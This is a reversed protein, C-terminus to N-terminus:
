ARNRRLAVLGGGIALIIMSIPEPTAATKGVNAAWINYDAVDVLGDGNLDGQTWTAGTKGVNAAWINYDAVDVLGDNNIDGALTPNSWVNTLTIGTSTYNVTASGGVFKISAFSSNSLDNPATIITLTQGAFPDTVGGPQTGKPELGPVINVVLNADALANTTSSASTIAGSGWLGVVLNSYDVGQVGRTGNVHFALTSATGANRALTLGGWVTMTKPNAATGITTDGSELTSGTLTAVFSPTVYPWGGQYCCITGSGSIKSNIFTCTNGGSATDNIRIGAQSDASFSNLAVNLGTVVNQLTNPTGAIWLQARNEQNQISGINKDATVSIQGCNSYDLNTPLSFTGDTVATKGLFGTFDSVSVWGGNVIFNSASTGTLSDINMGSNCTAASVFNSDHLVINHYTLGYQGTTENFVLAGGGYVDVQCAGFAYAFGFTVTSGPSITMANEDGTNNELNGINVDINGTAPTVYLPQDNLQWGTVNGTGQFHVSACYGNLNWGMNIAGMTPGFYVDNTSNPMGGTSWNAGNFLDYADGTGYSINGTTAGQWNDPTTQAMASPVLSVLAAAVCLIQLIRSGSVNRM